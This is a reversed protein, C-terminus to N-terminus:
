AVAVDLVRRLSALTVHIAGGAVVLHPQGDGVTLAPLRGLFYVDLDLLLATSQDAHTGVVGPNLLKSTPDLLIRRRNSKRLKGFLVPSDALELFGDLHAPVPQRAVRAIM